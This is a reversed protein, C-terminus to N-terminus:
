EFLRKCGNLCDSLSNSRIEPSRIAERGQLDTIVIKEKGTQFFSMLERYTDVHKLELEDRGFFQNIEPYYNEFSVDIYRSKNSKRPVTQVIHMTALEDLEGNTLERVRLLKGKCAPCIHINRSSQWMKLCNQHVPKHCCPTITPIPETDRCVFCVADSDIIDDKLVYDIKSYSETEHSFAYCISGWCFLRRDNRGLYIYVTGSLSQNPVSLDIQNNFSVLYALTNFM